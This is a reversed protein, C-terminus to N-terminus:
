KHSRRLPPSSRTPLPTPKLFGHLATAAELANLCLKVRQYGEHHDAAGQLANKAVAQAVILMAQEPMPLCARRQGAEIGAARNVLKNINAHVHHRNSSEAALAHIEDHLGHYTPLYETRYQDAARRAERFAQVLKAKLNVVRESNRSLSLLFFAQDENLLAFREPNGGGHVREGVAKQFPLQGFGKFENSYREILAMVAKHQNGLHESLVRSDIRSEAKTATLAIGGPSSANRQLYKIPTSM